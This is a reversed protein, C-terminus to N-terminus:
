TAEGHRAIDVIDAGPVLMGQGCLVLERRVLMAFNNKALGGLAGTNFWIARREGCFANLSNLADDASEKVLCTCNVVFEKGSEAGQTGLLDGGGFGGVIGDVRKKVVQGGRRVVAGCIVSAVHYEASVGAGAKV